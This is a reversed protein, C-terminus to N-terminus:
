RNMERLKYEPVPLEGDPHHSTRYLLCDTGIEYDPRRGLGLPHNASRYIKGDNRLEYEPHASWGRPHIVTPFFLGDVVLYEPYDTFAEQHGPVRFIQYM